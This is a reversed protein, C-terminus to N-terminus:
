PTAPLLVCLFRPHALGLQASPCIPLPRNFPPCFVLFSASHAVHKQGCTLPVLAHRLPRATIRLIPSCQLFSSSSTSRAAAIIAERQADTVPEDAFHRIARNGCLIKM